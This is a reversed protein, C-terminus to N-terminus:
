SCMWHSPVLNTEISLWCRESPLVNRSSTQSRQAFIVGKTSIQGVTPLVLLCLLFTAAVARPLRRKVDPTGRNATAQPRRSVKPTDEGIIGSCENLVLSVNHREGIRQLAHEIHDATTKGAEVALVVQGAIVSLIAAEQSLLIPPADIILITDPNETLHRLIQLMRRSAFRDLSDDNAAGSGVLTLRELNTRIVVEDLKISEDALAQIIGTGGNGGLRDVAGPGTTDVDVLVAKHGAVTTLGFAFNIAATTKSIREYPSTVLVVRDRWSSQDSLAQRILARIIEDMTKPLPRGRDRPDTFGSGILHDWDLELKPGSSSAQEESRVIDAEDTELRASLAATAASTEASTTSRHAEGTQETEIESRIQPSPADDVPSSGTESEVAAFALSDPSPSPTAVAETAQAEEVETEEYAPSVQGDNSTQVRAHESIHELTAAATQSAAESVDDRNKPPQHEDQAPRPGDGELLPTTVESTKQLESDNTTRAQDDRAKKAGDEAPRGLRPVAREVLSLRSRRRSRWGPKHMSRTAM